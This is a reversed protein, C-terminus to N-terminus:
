YLHPDDVAPTGGSVLNSYSKWRWCSQRDETDRTLLWEAWLEPYRRDIVLARRGSLSAAFDIRFQAVINVADPRTLTFSRV